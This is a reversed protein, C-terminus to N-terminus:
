ARPPKFLALVARAIRVQADGDRPAGPIPDVPRVAAAGHDITVHALCHGGHCPLSAPKDPVSDLGGDALTTIAAEPSGAFAPAHEACHLLSILLGVTLLAVLPLRALRIGRMMGAIHSRRVM